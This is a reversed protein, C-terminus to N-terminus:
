TLLTMGHVGALKENQLPTPQQKRPHIHVSAIVTSDSSSATRPNQGFGSRELRLNSRSSFLKPCTNLHIVLLAVGLRRSAAAVRWCLEDGSGWGDELTILAAADTWFYETLRRTDLIGAIDCKPHV